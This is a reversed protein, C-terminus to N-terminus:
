ARTDLGVARMRRDVRADWAVCEANWAAIWDAITAEIRRHEELGIRSAKLSAKMAEIEDLEDLLRCVEDKARKLVCLPTSKMEEKKLTTTSLDPDLNRANAAMM